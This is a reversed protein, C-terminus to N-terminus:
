SDFEQDGSLIDLQKIEMAGVLADEFIIMDIELFGPILTVDIPRFFNIDHEPRLVISETEDIPAVRTPDTWFWLRQPGVPGPIRVFYPDHDQKSLIQYTEDIPDVRTPDRWLWLRQTGVPLQVHILYPDHQVRRIEEVVEQKAPTRWFWLRQPASPTVTPAYQRFPFFVASHDTVRIEEAVPIQGYAAIAVYEFWGPERPLEFVDHTVPKIVEPADVYSPSTPKKWLWLRNHSPITYQFFRYSFLNAAPVPKVPEPLPVRTPDRWTWLRQPPAVPGLNYQRFPQFIASHNPQRVEETVNISSYDARSTFEYWVQDGIFDFLSHRPQDIFEPTDVLDVRTSNRWMWLRNHSTPASAPVYQRFPQLSLSHNIPRHEFTPEAATAGGISVYEYFVYFQRFFNLKEHELRPVIPDPLEVRTPNRWMWLRQPVDVVPPVVTTRNFFMFRANHDIPTPDKPVNIVQTVDHQVIFHGSVRVAIQRYSHLDYPAVPEVADAAPIRTPDQWLWLRQPANAPAAAYQRHPFMRGDHDTKRILEPIIEHTPQTVPLRQIAQQVSIQRHPFLRGAHDIPIPDRYVDIGDAYQFTGEIYQYAVYDSRFRYLTTHDQRPVDFTTDIPVSPQRWLWLRQPQSTSVSRGFMAFLEAHDIPRPDEIRREIQTIDSPFLFHGNSPASLPQRHVHLTDHDPEPIIPATVSLMSVVGAVAAAAALLHAYQRRVQVETLEIWALIVDSSTGLTPNYTQTATGTVVKRQSQVTMGAATTGIENTQQSSWTGNSTDGDGTVTQGTGQENFLAGIVMNGSTISGTTVTPSATASGTNVGGTVYQIQFGTSPTVEMLTWCKAVPSNAFTVTITTGTVLKGKDQLCTFIAGEVGASAGVPDYLPSQRRVWTNGLTDSVDFTAMAAGGSGANDAAVVLVGWSDKTTFDSGPNLTFSPAGTNHTGTGRDTGTIAM